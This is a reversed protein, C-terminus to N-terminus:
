LQTTTWTHSLHLLCKDESAAEEEQDTFVIIIVSKKISQENQHFLLHIIIISDAYSVYLQTTTYTPIKEQVLRQQVWLLLSHTYWSSSQHESWIHLALDSTPISRKSRWTPSIIKFHILHVCRICVLMWKSDQFSAHGGMLCKELIANEALVHRSLLNSLLTIHTLM